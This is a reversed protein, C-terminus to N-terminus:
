DRHIFNKLHWNLCTGGYTILKTMTWVHKSQSPLSLFHFPFLFVEWRSTGKGYPLSVVVQERAPHANVPLRFCLCPQIQFGPLGVPSEPLGIIASFGKEKGYTRLLFYSWDMASLFAFYVLSSGDM